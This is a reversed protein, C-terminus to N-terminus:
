INTIGMPKKSIDNVNRSTSKSRSRASKKKEREKKEKREKEPRGNRPSLSQFYQMNNEQVDHQQCVPEHKVQELKVERQRAQEVAQISPKPQKLQQLQIGAQDRALHDEKRYAANIEAQTTLRESWPVM